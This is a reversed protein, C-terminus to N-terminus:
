RLGHNKRREEDTEFFYKVTDFATFSISFAIPGKLWNMSVGKFFGRVGQEQYLVRITSSLTPLNPSSTVVTSTPNLPSRNPAAATGAGPKDRLNEFATDSGVVGLTQM